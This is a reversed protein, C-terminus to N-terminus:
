FTPRTQTEIALLRNYKAIREGRGLGGLKIGDAEVAYALDAIFDDNTDQGRPSVVVTWNWEKALQVAELTESISGIQNPKIIVGNISGKEHAHKMREINTTTLDDGCVVIDNGFMEHLKEFHSFDEEKFPDELFFLNYKEKAEKYIPLLKKASVRVNNAAADIGFDVLGQVALAKAVKQFVKLPELNNKFNPTFGGEDGVNVASPGVNTKVYERILRYMEKGIQIAEKVSRSKPIVLYEQFDLQTGAHVGGETCNIYLRPANTGEGKGYIDRLHKWLPVGKIEAALRSAAISVSLIANAGLKSKNTTGDLELLTKDIDGQNEPDRGKLIPEIVETINQIAKGVPVYHAEHSGKSEGEPISAIVEKGGGRMTVEITWGGRSNLIKRASISEISPM